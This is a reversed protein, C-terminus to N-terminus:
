LLLFDHLIMLSRVIVAKTPFAITMVCLTMLVEVTLLFLSLYASHLNNKGQSHQALIAVGKHKLKGQFMKAM